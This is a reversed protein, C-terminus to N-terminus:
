LDGILGPLDAALADREIGADAEPVADSGDLIQITRLGAAHAGRIDAEPHDGVYVTEDPASSLGDLIAAFTRDDPKGAALSGTIVVTDFLDAWGLADLKAQQARVPGDTLLGVRYTEKLDVVLAEAGEVPVLAEEIADRYADALAAPSVTSDEGLLDAFIAERTENTLHRRHADLYAERSFRPAGVAETADDLLTQRDRDPVALTYDLDFAVATVPM